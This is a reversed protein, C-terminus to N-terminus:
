RGGRGHGGRVGCREAARGDAEWSEMLLEPQGLGALRLRLAPGGRHQPGATHMFLCSHLGLAVSWFSIVVPYYQM